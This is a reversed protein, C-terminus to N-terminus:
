PQWFICAHNKWNIFIVFVLKDM